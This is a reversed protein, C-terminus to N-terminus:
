QMLLPSPLLQDPQDYAPLAVSEIRASTGRFASVAWCFPGALGQMVGLMVDNKYVTMSGQDLDLLMGVRDGQQKAPEMGQWKRSAPFCAGNHTSYFCHGDAYQPRGARVGAVDWRPRIAGFFMIQGELLTFQAFHRGSSMVGSSAAARFEGHEGRTAVAGDECLTIDAHARAFRTFRFVEVEQMLGLRSELGPCRVWGREHESCRTLWLRAAEDAICLMEPAAAAGGVAIIKESFRKNTLKLRLLDRATPLFSAIRLLVDDTVGDGLLWFPAAM